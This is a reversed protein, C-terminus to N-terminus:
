GARNEAEPPTHRYMELAFRSRKLNVTASAVLDGTALDILTLRVDLGTGLDTIRGTILAQAELADRLRGLEERNYVLAPSLRLGAMVAAVDGREVVRLLRARNVAEVVRGSFYEGLASVRGGGNVLNLVSVKELGRQHALEALPRVLTEAKEQYYVSDNAERVPESWMLGGPELRVKCGVCLTVLLILLLYNGQRM